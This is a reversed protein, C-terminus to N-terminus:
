REEQICWLFLMGNNPHSYFISMKDVLIDVWLSLQHIYMREDINIRADFVGKTSCSIM